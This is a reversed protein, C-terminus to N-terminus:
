YKFGGYLAGKSLGISVFKYAFVSLVQLIMDRLLVVVFKIPLVM